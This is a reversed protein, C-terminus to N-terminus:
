RVCLAYRRAPVGMCYLFAVLSKREFGHMFRPVAKSPLIVRPPM